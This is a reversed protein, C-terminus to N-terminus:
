RIPLIKQQQPCGAARWLPDIFAKSHMSGSWQKYIESHCESCVSPKIFQEVRVKKFDLIEQEEIETIKKIEKEAVIKEKVEERMALYEAIKEADVDTITGGSYGSMRITTRKWAELNQIKSLARERSHCRGCKREFLEKGEELAALVPSM